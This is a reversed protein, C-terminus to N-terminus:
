YTRPPLTGRPKLLRGAPRTSNALNAGITLTFKAKSYDSDSFAPTDPTIEAEVHDRLLLSDADDGPWYIWCLVKIGGGQTHPYVLRSGSIANPTFSVAATQGISLINATNLMRVFGMKLEASNTTFDTGATQTGISQVSAVDYLFNGSNDHLHLLSDPHITHVVGTLPTASQAYSQVADAGFVHKLNELSMNAATIQYSESSEVNRTSLTVKNGSRSDKLTVTSNSLSPNLVEITGIDRAPGAIPTGDSNYGSIAAIHLISGTVILNQNGELM